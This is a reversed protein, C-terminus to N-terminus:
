EPSEDRDYYSQYGDWKSWNPKEEEIHGCGEKREREMECQSCTSIESYLDKKKWESWKHKKRKREMGCQSCTSIQSCVVNEKWKTYTHKEREHKEKGCRQCIATNVHYSEYDIKECTKNWKHIGLFCIIKSFM